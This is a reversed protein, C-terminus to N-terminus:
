AASLEAAPRTAVQPPAAHMEEEAEPLEVLGRVPSLLIPVFSFLTGIAGIAIAAQLGIASALVGGLFSGVPIAGWVVFRIVANMRGRMRAPTVAQRLSIQTINYVVLGLGGLVGAVILFPVPSTQPGLPILLLSPGFVLTSAIMTRGVGFRRALREAMVAGVLFGVNGLAFVVGIVAPALELERVAYVVYIAFVLNGFLNAIATCTMIPRLYRHRLVFRLGEVLEGRMAHRRRRQREPVVEPSHMRLLLCASALFSAADVLITIPATVAHILAGAIGPGAIQAGSRSVELKSNGEVLQERAVLSPLYSQYAIDFFVTLTGTSFAVGYLHYITLADLAYAVPVSVLAAARGLDALILIPKRAIRDVWVGAPLSFLLFPLVELTALSAVAFANADLVIIAVLPLALLTVQSGVQSITEATWLKLFDAHRWLGRRFWLRNM